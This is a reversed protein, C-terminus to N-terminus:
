NVDRGVKERKPTKQEERNLLNLYSQKERIECDTKKLNESLTNLAETKSNIRSLLEDYSHARKAKAWAGINFRKARPQHSQVPDEVQEAQAAHEM